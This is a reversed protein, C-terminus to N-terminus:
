AILKESINNQQTTFALADQPHLPQSFYYGQIYRFGMQNVIALQEATEVGEVICRLNLNNCLDFITRVINRTHKDTAIDTIFSRDIKLRDLPMRQVYSLSSYGTGFDDLAIKAGQLKLLKLAENAQKFDNMVATETIEFVIRHSPFDSKEIISIISLITQPSSLDYISLNFSMYLDDPWQCAQALSKRLLITTLKGIIGMQEAAQIFIDPSIKGLMANDWRALTEFGMTKHSQTDIIPQLMISLEQELDAERLQYEINSLNRIITEHETSFIVPQGKSHQKSYCLAYDAREFLLQSTPAMSPHEVFGITAGIQISGEKLHFVQRMADCINEGIALINEIDDPDSIIFGFEDGGLRALMINEGVIDKLREGTKVLLDDGAPHGFVDNIRKFGDLDLLAVVLKRDPETKYKETLKDLEYFFSRRNPLRTLADMNALNINETNMQKLEQAQRILTAKQKVINKFKEHQRLAFFIIGIGIILSATVALNIILFKKSSHDSSILLNDSINRSSQFEQIALNILPSFQAFVKNLLNKNNTSAVKSLSWTQFKLNYTNMLQFIHQKPASGINSRETTSKFKEIQQKFKVLYEPGYRLMFDKEHRRLMLMEIFIPDIEYQNDPNKKLENLLNEIKHVAQRLEGELGKDANLGLNKHYNVAQQFHSIYTTIGTKIEIFKQKEQADSHDILVNIHVLADNSQIKFLEIHHPSLHAFYEKEHRHMLMSSKNLGHLKDAKHYYDSNNQEHTETQHQVNLAIITTLVIILLSVIIIATVQTKVSFKNAFQPLAKYM